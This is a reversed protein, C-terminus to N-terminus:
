LFFIGLAVNLTIWLPEDTTYHIFTYRIVNGISRLFYLEAIWVFFKLMSTAILICGMLSLLISHNEMQVDLFSRHCSSLILLVLAVSVASLVMDVTSYSLLGYM